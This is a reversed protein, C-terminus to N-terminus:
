GRSCRFNIEGEGEREGDKDGEGKGERKREGERERQIIQFRERGRGREVRCNLGERGRERVRETDEVTLHNALFYSHPEEKRLQLETNKLRANPRWGTGCASAQIFPYRIIFWRVVHSKM